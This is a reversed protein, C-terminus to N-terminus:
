IQSEYHVDNNEDFYIKHTYFHTINQVIFTLYRYENGSDSVLINVVRNEYEGDADKLVTINCVYIDDFNFNTPYIVKFDECCQQDMDVGFVFNLFSDNEKNNVVNVITEMNNKSPTPNKKNITCHSNVKIEKIVKM